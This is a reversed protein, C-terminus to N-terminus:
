FDYSLRVLQRSFNSASDTPVSSNAVVTHIFEFNLKDSASYAVTLDTESTDTTAKNEDSFQGRALSVTLKESAAFDVSVVRAVANTLGGLTMEAMSTYYNGGGLGLSASKGADNAGRNLFVGLAVPGWVYRASLGFVTGDTGSAKVENFQSYQLGASFNGNEYAADAYYQRYQDNFDYYWGQLTHHANMKYHLGLATVGDNSAKKFQEISPGSDFGAWQTVVGADLTLSDSLAMNLWAANFTNPLLHIEDINIFPNDLKQRGLRLSGKNFAYNVYAEGLYAYSEGNANFFDANFQNKAPDGSLSDLKEAFYPAIAFQLRNWIATEFKIQGGFASGTTTNEGAVDPSVAIHALRFQGSTTANNIADAFSTAAAINPLVLGGVLLPASILKHINFTM